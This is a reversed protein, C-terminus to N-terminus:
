RASVTEVAPVGSRDTERLGFRHHLRRLPAPAWWTARGGLRMLAPLLAGRILTADILVALPLGIGYAKVYTIGSVTFGLFVISIVVAAATVMRGIRELGVAVATTGSGTREYEERIRALMFVQYDMALGYSLAFLMVPITSAITGTVTFGGFLGSLHGDQFIWVLAGFTATLSLASLLLALFPLLVSGTLLFLLVVMTVAVLLLVYPLREVLVDTTDVSVAAAGGVLVPFPAPAARVDEVLHLADDAEATSPVVSLYVGDGIAFRQHTPGTPAAMSGAVYSGTVTDVRGVNPLQSLRMAYAGVEASGADARIAVVQLTNLEAGDFNQRILATVQRAQSSEPMSREDPMGLRIGLFPAGLLLLFAVVLVAVPVPRRMVFTALRHWFGSDATESAAVPRRRRLVRGRDIRTGLVALLAPLVTVSGLAAFVATIMAGYGMSRVAPLPILVLGSLVLVITVASFVVTRGATAMTRHIAAQIDRGNALEERYRNIMLLGYDISLGLGLLTVVSVAFVSLDTASAVVWLVGLGVLMTVFAVSLPVLAAIIAGFVFVLVIMTLPFAIAEGKAGDSQSLETTEKWFMASGGVRVDLGDRAGEYRPVLDALVKNITTEDGRVTAGVLAKTGDHSRLQPPMGATWYSTVNVVDPEDTLRQSLAAAARSAAPDDVGQPASVVLTLNPTGQGGADLVAAARGSEADPDALGGATLKDFLTVSATGGALALLVAVVLVTRSRRLLLRSLKELM